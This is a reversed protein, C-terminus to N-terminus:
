FTLEVASGTNVVQKIPSFVVNGSDDTISIMEGTTVEKVSKWGDPTLVDEVVPISISDQFERTKNRDGAKFM